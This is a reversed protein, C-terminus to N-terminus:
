HDQWHMHAHIQLVYLVCISQYIHKYKFCMCSVYARNYAGSILCDMDCICPRYQICVDIYRCTYAHIQIYRRESLPQISHMHDQIGNVYLCMCVCISQFIQIYTFCMCSVYASVYAGSILCDMDCICPSYQICVSYIQMYICARNCRSQQANAKCDSHTQPVTAAPEGRPRQGNQWHTAARDSCARRTPLAHAHVPLDAIKNSGAGSSRIAAAPQLRRAEARLDSTPVPVPERPLERRPAPSRRHVISYNWDFYGRGVIRIM